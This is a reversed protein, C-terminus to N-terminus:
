SQSKETLCCPLMTESQSMETAPVVESREKVRTLLRRWYGALGERVGKAELGLETREYFEPANKSTDPARNAHAKPRKSM